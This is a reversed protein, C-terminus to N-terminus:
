TQGEAAMHLMRHATLMEQKDVLVAQCLKCRVTVHCAEMHAEMSCKQKFEKECGECKVKEASRKEKKKDENVKSKKQEINLKDDKKVSEKEQEVIKVKKKANEEKKLKEKLVKITNDKEKCELQAKKLSSKLENELSIIKAKSQKNEEVLEKITSEMKEIKAKLGLDESTNQHRYECSNQRRCSVGFKCYKQHRKQCVKRDCKQECKETVHRFLCKEKNKCYGSNQFKCLDESM